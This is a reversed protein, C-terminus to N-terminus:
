IHVSVGFIEAYISETDMWIEYTPSKIAQELSKFPMRRVDVALYSILTGSYSALIVIVM